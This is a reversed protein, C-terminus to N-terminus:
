RNSLGRRQPDTRRARHALTARHSRVRCRWCIRAGHSTSRPVAPERRSRTGPQDLTDLDGRLTVWELARAELCQSRFFTGKPKRSEANPSRAAIQTHFNTSRPREPRVMGSVSNALASSIHFATRGNNHAPLWSMNALWAQNIEEGKSWSVRLQTRETLYPNLPTGPRVLVAESPRFRKRHAKAAALEYGKSASVM